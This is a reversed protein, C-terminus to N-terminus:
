SKNKNNTTLSSNLWKDFTVKQIITEHLLIQTGEKFSEKLKYEYCLMCEILNTSKAPQIERQDGVPVIRTLLLTLRSM